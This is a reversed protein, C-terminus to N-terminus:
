FNIFVRTMERLTYHKDSKWVNGGAGFQNLTM